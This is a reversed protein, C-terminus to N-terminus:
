KDIGFKMAIRAESEVPAGNLVAPKYVWQTVADQAAKVLMPPGKVTKFGKIKGDAGILAVLEVTGTTGTQRALKPYEAEKRSVVEAPHVVGGKVEPPPAPKAPVPISQVPVPPAIASPPAAIASLDAASSGPVVTNALAPAEPIDTPAAPRLRKVLSESDFQRTPPALASVAPDAAAPDDDTTPAAAHQAAANPQSKTPDNPRASAQTVAKGTQNDDPMPSPRTRLVRVSESSTKSQDQRTVEMKFSVDATVPSYVISGNRLQSMDMDYNEHKEGDSISLLAHSANKIAESDRNWTLLIDTGTREVRLSLPSSDQRPVSPKGNHLIGPLLFATALTALGVMAGAAIGMFKTSHKAPAPAAVPPAVPEALAPREAALKVPKPTSVVPEPAIPPAVPPAAAAAPPAPTVAPLPVPTEVPPVPAPQTIERRSAIPVIQARASPKPALPEPITEATSQTNTAGTSDAPLGGQRSPALQSSRFPFELYSSEAHLKGAEKIFIAATSAKTASPRVLMSFHHPEHFRPEFFSVDEADLALGKRTNSRFFGVVQLGRSANYKEIAREIRSIDADALRYLPGRAYDCPMLECDEVSVVLPNGPAAKGLLLGGIESGRSSLSRFSEVIDRELRDILDFPIRVSVPKQAVEWVYCSPNSPTLDFRPALATSDTM